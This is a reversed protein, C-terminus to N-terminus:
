PTVTAKVKITYSGAALIQPTTVSGRATVDMTSPIGSFGNSLDIKNYTYATGQFGGSVGAGAAGAPYAGTGADLQFEEVYGPQTPAVGTDLKVAITSTTTNCVTSISGKTTSTLSSVFGQNNPLVGNVVTLSCTGDVSGTHDSTFNTAVTNGGPANSGGAHSASAFGVVTSIAILSALIKKM